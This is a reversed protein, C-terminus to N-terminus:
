AYFSVDARLTRKELIDQLLYYSTLNYIQHLIFGSFSTFSKTTKQEIHSTKYNPMTSQNLVFFIDDM